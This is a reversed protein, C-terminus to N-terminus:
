RDGFRDLAAVIAGSMRAGSTAHGESGVLRLEAGPWVRALEQATHPPAQPDNIGQVLIVPIGDLRGAGSLLQGGALWAAHRFYHTVIRGRQLRYKPDDWQAPWRGEPEALVMAGEWLHFDLAARHQVAPDPDFMLDGYAAVLGTEAAHPAGARFRAWAEPLDERLGLYLWDIENQRTTTVGAFVAARVQEPYTEASALGLTVGWSSGYLVWSDVGFFVRLRVIDEVLHWTTNTALRVTAEAASPTSRGANRQDFAIIRYREPDFFRRTTASFGSGPGGHLILAPIGEPNGAEEWYLAHGDGVELWGSTHPKGVPYLRGSM